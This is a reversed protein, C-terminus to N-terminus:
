NGTTANPQGPIVESGQSADLGAADTSIAADEAAAGSDLGSDGDEPGILAGDPRTADPMLAIAGDLMPLPTPGITRTEDLKDRDFDAIVECACLTALLLWKPSGVKV